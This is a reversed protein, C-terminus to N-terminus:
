EEVPQDADDTISENKNLLGPLYYEIVYSNIDRNSKLIRVPDTSQFDTVNTALNIFDWLTHISDDSKNFDLEIADLYKRQFEKSETENFPIPLFESVFNVGNMSVFNLRGFFDCVTEKNFSTEKLTNIIKTDYEYHEEIHEAWHQIYEMFQEYSLKSSRSGYTSIIRDGGYICMNQCSHVNAGMAAQVGDQVYNLAIGYILEDTSYKPLEIITIARRILYSQINKPGHKDELRKIIAAGKAKSQGQDNVYIDGIQAEIGLKTFVDFVDKFFKWHEPIEDDMISQTLKLEQFHLTQTHGSDFTLTREKASKVTMEEKTM